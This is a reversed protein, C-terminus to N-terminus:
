NMYYGYRIIGAEGAPITIPTDLVIRDIMFMRKSNAGSPTGGETTSANVSLFRGIEKIVLDQASNNTITYQAYRGYKKNVTDIANSYTVAALYSEGTIQNELYYDDETAPTDGSGILVCSSATNAPRTFIMDWGSGLYYPSIYYNDGNIDKASIYCPTYNTYKPYMIAASSVDYPFSIMKKGLKTFM